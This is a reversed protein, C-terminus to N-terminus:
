GPDQARAAYQPQAVQDVVELGGFGTRDEVPPEGARHVVRGGSVGGRLVRRVDAGFVAGEPPQEFRHEGGGSEVDDTDVVHTAEVARVGTDPVVSVVVTRPVRVTGPVGCSGLDARAARVRSPRAPVPM